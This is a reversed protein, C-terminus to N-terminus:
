KLLKKDEYINGIVRLSILHSIGCLMGNQKDTIGFEYDEFIIERLYVHVLGGQATYTANVKDGEFIKVEEEDEKGIYQGVTDPHVEVMSYDDDGIRIIFHKFVDFPLSQIKVYYGYVWEGNDGMHNARTMIQGRFLIEKM